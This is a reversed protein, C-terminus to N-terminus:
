CVGRWVREQAESGARKSTDTGCAEKNQGTRGKAIPRSPVGRLNLSRAGERVFTQPSCPCEIRSRNMLCIHKFTFCVLSAPTTPRLLALLLLSLIKFNKDCQHSAELNYGLDERTTLGRSEKHQENQKGRGRQEERTMRGYDKLTGETENAGGGEGAARKCSAERHHVPPAVRLSYICLLIVRIAAIYKM